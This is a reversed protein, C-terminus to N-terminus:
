RPHRSRRVQRYGFVIAPLLLFLFAVIASADANGPFRPVYLCGGGGGGSSPAPPPPPEGPVINGWWTGWRDREDPIQAYEQLTWFTTDDTPDVMTASFDGWRNSTGSLTKYYPAEGAKLLTVPDATGTSPWVITYWGGAFETSSSGTFGIAAVNDKNVAISPYYYWRNSDTIRGQTVITNSVPNIRYWAVEVKGSPGVVHHTAWVSGNRYVANLMRTDSTDITNDNGLGLQPAGPTSIMPAYSTIGPVTAPSNLVPTGSINDIRTLALQTSSGESVLYQSASTGFTHAPQRSFGSFLPGHFEFWTITSNGNLVNDSKPIIWLKGYQAGDNNDFMNATIYINFEDVGLGPYDAFNNTQITNNDLDADIAWKDWPDLPNSTSSVAFLVWSHTTITCDLTVAVFRGSHQDYLIKPDFPFDAAPGLSSWFSELTVNDLKEGAKSFVGWESNLLSVLHAPGAAGMTDPPILDGAEPPLNELGKFNSALVSSRLGPIPGSPTESAVPAATASPEIGAPPAPRPTRRFPIAREPRGRKPLRSPALARVEALSERAHPVNATVASGVTRGEPAGEPAGSVALVASALFLLPVWLIRGRPSHRDKRSSHTEM